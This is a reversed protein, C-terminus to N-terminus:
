RKKEFESKWKSPVSEENLLNLLAKFKKSCRSHSNIRNKLYNDETVLEFLKDIERINFNEIILKYYPEASNATGYPNGVFCLSIVYVFEKLIQSPISKRLNSLRKAYPAENYFNDISHHTKELQKILDGMIAVQDDKSLLSLADVKEFFNKAYQKKTGDGLVYGSYLIALDSKAIETFHSWNERSLDLCNQRVFEDNSEDVYLGFLAKLIATKQLENTKSIRESLDKLSDETLKASKITEIFKDSRFGVYKAESSLIQKVNQHIFYNLEEGDLLFNSPHASSYNNRIERCHNLFFYSDESLLGLQVSIDLLEKDKLEKLKKENLDNSLFQNAEDLGFNVINGRMALITINWMENIASSFLGVRVAVVMRALMEHRYEIKIKSIQKILTSWVTEIEDQSALVSRPFGLSKTISDVINESDINSLAPLVVKEDKM